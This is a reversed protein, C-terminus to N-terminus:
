NNGFAEFLQGFELFDGSRTVSDEIGLFYGFFNKISFPCFLGLFQWIKPSIKFYHDGGIVNLFLLTKCYQQDEPDGCAQKNKM